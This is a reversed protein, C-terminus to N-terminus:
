DREVIASSCRDNFYLYVYLFFGGAWGIGILFCLGFRMKSLGIFGWVGLWHGSVLKIFFGLQGGFREDKRRVINRM